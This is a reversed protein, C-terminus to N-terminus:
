LQHTTTQLYYAINYLVCTNSFKIVVSPFISFKNALDYTQRSMYCLSEPFIFFFRYFYESLRSVMAEGGNAQSWTVQDQIALVCEMGQGDTGRLRLKSMFEEMVGVFLFHNATSMRQTGPGCSGARLWRSTTRGRM